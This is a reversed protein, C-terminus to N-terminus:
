RSPNCQQKTNYRHIIYNIRHLFNRISYSMLGGDARTENYANVFIDYRLKGDDINPIDEVALFENKVIRNYAEIKGQLQPYSNPIQNDKIQIVVLFIDTCKPYLSSEMTM